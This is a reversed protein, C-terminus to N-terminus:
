PLLYPHRIGVWNSKFDTDRTVLEISRVQATAWVIADPLKVKHSRRLKIAAEAIEDDIPVIEFRSEFFNRIYTDDGTEGVLVEMWTIRSILVREYRQYEADAAAVGNLADVVINTDFVAIM